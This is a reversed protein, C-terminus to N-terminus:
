KKEKVWNQMFFGDCYDPGLYGGRGKKFQPNQASFKEVVEETEATRFTCLGYTLFGGPKVLKSYANLLRLQLDPVRKLYDASQRWKMDPNRRLVGWGSCPADVLVRDATEFFARLESEEEGETVARTQINRLDSRQARKKLAQLKRESIDYSFVRAKGQVADAMALSKGGAGACADIIKYSSSISPPM